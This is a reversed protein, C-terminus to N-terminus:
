VSGQPPTATTVSAPEFRPLVHHKSNHYRYIMIAIVIISSVLIITGPIGFMIVADDNNSTTQTSNTISPVVM